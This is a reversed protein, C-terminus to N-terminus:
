RKKTVVVVVIVRSSSSSSSSVIVPTTNKGKRHINCLFLLHETSECEFSYFVVKMEEKPSKQVQFLM